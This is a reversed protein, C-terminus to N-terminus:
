ITLLRRLFKALKRLNSITDQDCLESYSHTM